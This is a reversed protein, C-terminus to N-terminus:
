GRDGQLSSSNVPRKFFQKTKSQTKNPKVESNNQVKIKFLSYKEKKRNKKNRKGKEMGGRKTLFHSNKILTFHLLFLTKLAVFHLVSNSKLAIIIGEHSQTKLQELM